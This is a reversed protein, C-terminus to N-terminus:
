GETFLENETWNLGRGLSMITYLHKGEKFRSIKLEIWNLLVSNNGFPSIEDSMSVFAFLCVFLLLFLLSILFIFSLFFGCM